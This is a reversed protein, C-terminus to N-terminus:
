KHEIDDRRANFVVQGVDRVGYRAAVQAHQVAFFDALGTYHLLKGTLSLTSIRAWSEVYVFRMSEAPVAGALKLAYIVAAVFFGTAPGNSFVLSPYRRSDEPRALLAPVIDLVSRLASFPTTLLSQHVRRARTVHVVDYTGTETQRAACLATLAAEYAHLHHLSTADGRTVLYRRHSRRFDCTGDDMMMLMERTHGGSGLVFLRYDDRRQPPAAGALPPSSLWRVRRRAAVLQIHRTTIFITFLAVVAITTLIIVPLPFASLALGAIVALLAASASALLITMMEATRETGKGGGLAIRKFSRYMEYEREVIRRTAEEAAEEVLLECGEGTLASCEYYKAKIHKAQWAAQASSVCTSAAIVSQTSASLPLQHYYYGLSFRRLSASRHRLDKKTGLLRVTPPIPKANSFLREATFKWWAVIAQLSSPDSIDFCLFINDWHIHALLQVTALDPAGSTDWLEVRAASHRPQHTYTEYMQFIAMAFAFGVFLFNLHLQKSMIPEVVVTSLRGVSKDDQGGYCDEDEFAERSRKKGRRFLGALFGGSQTKKKQKKPHTTSLTTSPRPPCITSEDDDNDTTTTYGQQRIPKLLKARILSFRSAPRQVEEEDAPDQERFTLRTVPREGFGDNAFPDERELRSPVPRGRVRELDKGDQGAMMIGAAAGSLWAWVMGHGNFGAAIWEGSGNIVGGAGGGPYPNRRETVNAGLAGVFPLGDGTFGMIGTWDSKEGGGATTTPGGGWNPEFVTPMIGRVHALPLADRRSDDWTGLLDLGGHRGQAFGGGVLVDGPSGDDQDPRQTAYDYGPEYVTSWSRNGHTRPFHAGGHQATMCGRAGTLYQRLRPILAPAYANSAHLVHRTRVVGASTHVAYPHQPSNPAISINAVPTNSLLVLEPYRDILAKWAGTVLRFPFAAGAPYSIAGAVFGNCGFKQCAEEGSWVNVEMEPVSRRVDEVLGKAKEFDESELFLDVAEVDRVEGEPVQERLERLARRGRDMFRLVERAREEEEEDEEGLAEKLTAFDRWPTVEVRGGGRGTAGGCVDRADLAVVRLPMETRQDQSIELLTKTAALGALGTGIVVYDAIDPLSRPNLNVSPFPPDSMWYSATADPVPTAAAHLARNVLADYGVSYGASIQAAIMEM